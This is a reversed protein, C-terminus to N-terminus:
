NKARPCSEQTLADLTTEGKVLLDCVHEMLITHATPRGLYDLRSLMRMEPVPLKTECLFRTGAPLNSAGLEFFGAAEEVEIITQGIKTAWEITELMDPNDSFLIATDVEEGTDDQLNQITPFVLHPNKPDSM